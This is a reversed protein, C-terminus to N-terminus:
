KTSFIAEKFGQAMTEPTYDNIILRSQLGMQKRLNENIILRQLAKALSAVDGVPVILGNVKDKILDDAAGAATSCVIPLCVAMAENLVLGWPDSRTPFVFIDAAAYYKVLEDEPKFGTFVVNDLKKEQCYNQYKHLCAGNGVIALTLNEQPLLIFAELLEPIGKEDILRGVFSYCLRQSKVKTEM